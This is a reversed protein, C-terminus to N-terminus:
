APIIVASSLGAPIQGVVGSGTTECYYYREGQYQYSAYQFTTSYEGFSGAVGVAMHGPDGLYELLVGDYGLATTQILSLFLISKCDCDGVKDVLTEIPYRAYNIQGTPNLDEGYSIDPTQVFALALNLTDEPGYGMSVAINKIKQAAQNLAPDTSIVHGAYDVQTNPGTSNMNSGRQQYYSPGSINLNFSFTHGQYSWTYSRSFYQLGIFFSTTPCWKSQYHNNSAMVRWYYTTNSSLSSADYYSPQVLADVTPNSFDSSNSLQFHYTLAGPVDTWNLMM